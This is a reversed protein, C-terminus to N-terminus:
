RCYRSRRGADADLRSTLIVQAAGTRVGDLTVPGRSGLEPLGTVSDGSDAM